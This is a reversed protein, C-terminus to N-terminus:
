IQGGLFMYILEFLTWWLTLWGMVVGMQVPKSLDKFGVEKKVQGM